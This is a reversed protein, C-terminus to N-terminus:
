LVFAVCIAFPVSGKEKFKRLEIIMPRFEKELSPVYSKM